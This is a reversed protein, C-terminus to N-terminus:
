KQTSPYTVVFGSLRLIEAAALKKAEIETTARGITEHILASAQVAVKKVGNEEFERQVTFRVGKLDNAANVVKRLREIPNMRHYATGNFKQMLANVVNQRGFGDLLRTAAQEKIASKKIGTGNASATKGHLSLTIEYANPNRGIHKEDVGVNEGLLTAYEYLVMVNTRVPTNEVLCTRNKLAPKEYKTKAYAQRACKEKAKKVTTSTDEYAENGLQLKYKLHVFNGDTTNSVQTYVATINNHQAVREILCVANRKTDLEVDSPDVSSVVIWSFQAVCLWFIIPKIKLM